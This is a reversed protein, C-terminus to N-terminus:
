LKSNYDAYATIKLYATLKTAYEATRYYTATVDALRNIDFNKIKSKLNYFEEEDATDFISFDRTLNVHGRSTVYRDELLEIFKEFEGSKSFGILPVKLKTKKTEVDTECLAIQFVQFKEYPFVSKEGELMYNELDPFQDKLSMLFGFFLAESLEREDSTFQKILNIYDPNIM